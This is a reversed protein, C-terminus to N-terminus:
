SLIMPLLSIRSHLDLEFIVLSWTSSLVRLEFSALAHWPSAFLTEIDKTKPSGSFPGKFRGRLCSFLLDKRILKVLM